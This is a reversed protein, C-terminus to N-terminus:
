EEVMLQELPLRISRAHPEDSSGIRAFFGSEVLIENRLVRRLGSSYLAFVRKSSDSDSSLPRQSRAYWGFIVATMEPQLFLGQAAATLWLRQMGVGLRVWDELSDAERVPALYVHGSCMLAPLFDLQIRPLVTGMLYRNFFEVRGWKKMVWHMLKATLPDVGVAQEPIRDKSFRAGWEIVTKHVEYAEPCTLRIYASDWLLKAIQWREAFSELLYVTYGDGPAALIAQRQTDTLSTPRMPRRQVTRTEIFPHLPDPPIGPDMRFTVSYRINRWEEDVEPLWEM